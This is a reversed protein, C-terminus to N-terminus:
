GKAQVMPTALPPWLSWAGWFKKSFTTM